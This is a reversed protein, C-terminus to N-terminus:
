VCRSTYLLCIYSLEPIHGGHTDNMRISIWPSVGYKRCAKETEEFWNIGQKLLDLYRDHLNTLREYYAPM